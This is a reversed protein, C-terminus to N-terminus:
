RPSRAYRIATARAPEARPAPRGSGARVPAIAGPPLPRSFTAAISVTASAAGIGAMTMAGLRLTMRRELDALSATLLGPFLATHERFRIDMRNELEHLRLEAQQFGADMRMALEKLDQKTALSDALAEAQGEAPQETFGAERLRRAYALTNIANAM